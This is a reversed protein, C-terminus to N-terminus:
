TWALGQRLGINDTLNCPYKTAPQIYLYPRTADDHWPNMSEQTPKSTSIGEKRVSNSRSFSLRNQFFRKPFMRMRLDQRAIRIPIIWEDVPFKLLSFLGFLLSSGREIRSVGILDGSM